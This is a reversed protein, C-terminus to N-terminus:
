RRNGSHRSGRLHPLDIGERPLRDWCILTSIIPEDSCAVNGMDLGGEASLPLGEDSYGILRCRLLSLLFSLPRFANM